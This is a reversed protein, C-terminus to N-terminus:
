REQNSFLAPTSLSHHAGMELLAGPELGCCGWVWRVTTRQRSDQQVGFRKLWWMSHFFVKVCM